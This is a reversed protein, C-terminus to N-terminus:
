ESGGLEDLRRDLIQTQSEHTLEVTCLDGQLRCGGRGVGEDEAWEIQTHTSLRDGAVALAEEARARDEPHVVIAVRHAESMRDLAAFLRAQLVEPVNEVQHLTLQEALDRVLQLMDNRPSQYTKELYNGFEEILASYARTAQQFEEQLSARTTELEAAAASAQEERDSELQVQAEKEGLAKGEAFGREYGEEYGREQGLAFGEEHRRALIERSREATDSIRRQVVQQAKELARQIRDQSEEVRTRIHQEIDQAARQLRELRGEAHRALSEALHTVDELQFPANDILVGDGDPPRIVRGAM